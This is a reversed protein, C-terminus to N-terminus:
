GACHERPRDPAYDSLKTHKALQHCLKAILDIREEAPLHSVDDAAVRKGTVGKV